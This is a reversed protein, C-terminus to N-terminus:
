GLSGWPFGWVVWATALVILLEGCVSMLAESGLVGGYLGDLPVM